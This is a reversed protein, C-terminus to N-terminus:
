DEGDSDDSEDLIVNPDEAEQHYDEHSLGDEESNDSNLKRRKSSKNNSDDMWKKMDLFGLDERYIQGAYPAGFRNLVAKPMVLSLAQQMKKKLITYYYMKHLDVRQEEASSTEIANGYMKNLDYTLKDASTLNKATIKAPRQMVYAIRQGVDFKVKREREAKRIAQVQALRENSYGEAVATTRQVEEYSLDPSLLKKCAEGFFAQLTNTAKDVEKKQTENIKRLEKVSFSPKIEQAKRPKKTAKVENDDGYLKDFEDDDHMGDDEDIDELSRMKRKKQDRTNKKSKVQAQKQLELTKKKARIAEAMTAKLSKAKKAPPFNRRQLFSASAYKLLKIDCNLLFEISKQYATRTLLNNDRRKGAIGQQKSKGKEKPPWCFRFAYMKSRFFIARNMQKELELNMTRALNGRKWSSSSTNSGPICNVNGDVLSIYLVSKYVVQANKAYVDSPTWFKYMSPDMVPNEDYVNLMEQIRESITKATVKGQDLVAQQCILDVFETALELKRKYESVDKISDYAVYIKKMQEVWKVMELSNYIVKACVDKYTEATLPLKKPDVLEVLKSALELRKAEDNASAEYLKNLELLNKSWTPFDNKWPKVPKTSVDVFGAKGEQLDKWSRALTINANELKMDYRRQLFPTETFISDTDGYVTPSWFEREATLNSLLIYHRGLLCTAM